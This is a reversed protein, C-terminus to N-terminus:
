RQGGSPPLQSSYGGHSKMAEQVCAASKLLRNAINREVDNSPNRLAKLYDLNSMMSVISIESHVGYLDGPLAFYNLRRRGLGDTGIYDRSSLRERSIMIEEAADATVTKGAVSVTVDHPGSLVQIRLIRPDISLRLLSNKRAHVTIFQSKVNLDIVPNLLLDATNLTITGFNPERRNGTLIRAGDVGRVMINAIEVTSQESNTVRAAPQPATKHAPPAAHASMTHTCIIALLLVQYGEVTRDGVTAVEGL